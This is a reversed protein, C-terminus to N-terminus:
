KLPQGVRIHLDYTESVGGKNLLCEMMGEEPLIKTVYGLYVPDGEALIHTKGDKDAIFAKGPIVAKLQALEIEIEGPQPAPLDHLILPAFPDTSVVEAALTQQGPAINLQPVPSYYAQVDMEYTVLLKVEGTKADKTEYGRLQITPIKFLRRGDEVYWIFKFLNAFEGSGKLNYTNFGFNKTTQPGKYLVDMTIEGSQEILHVLYGYTEGTIDRAPIDKSRTDWNRKVEELQNNLTIYQNSLDPTNQLGTEIVKIEQQLSKIKRPFSFLTFFSGLLAVVM